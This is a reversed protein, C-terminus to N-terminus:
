GPHERQAPDGLTDRYEPAADKWDDFRGDIAIPTSKVDPLPRTGKYRRINAVMQNLSSCM